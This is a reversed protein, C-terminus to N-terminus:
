KLGLALINLSPRAAANRFAVSRAASFPGPGLDPAM